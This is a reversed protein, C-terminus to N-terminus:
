RQRNLDLHFEAKGSPLLVIELQGEEKEYLTPGTVKVLQGNTATYQVSVPGRDRTQFRYHFTADKALSDAGFSASPYDVELLKIAGGTHNEVTAEIHYSHCGAILVTIPLLTAMTRLSIRM